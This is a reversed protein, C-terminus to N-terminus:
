VLFTKKQQTQLNTKDKALKCAKKEGYDDCQAKREETM